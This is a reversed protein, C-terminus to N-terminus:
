VRELIRKLERYNKLDIYQELIIVAHKPPVRWYTSSKKIGLMDAFEERSLGAERLLKGIIM